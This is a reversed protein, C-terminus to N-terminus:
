ELVGCNVKNVYEQVGRDKKHLSTLDRVKPIKLAHFGDLLIISNTGTGLFTETFYHFRTGDPKLFSM